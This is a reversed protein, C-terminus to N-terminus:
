YKCRNKVGDSCKYSRNFLLNLYIIVFTITMYFVNRKSQIGQQQKKNEPVRKDLEYQVLM